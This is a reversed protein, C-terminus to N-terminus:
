EYKVRLKKVAAEMSICEAYRKPWMMENYYRYATEKNFYNNDGVIILNKQM